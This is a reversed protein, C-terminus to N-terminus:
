RLPAACARPGARRVKVATHAGEAWSACRKGPRRRPRSTNGV